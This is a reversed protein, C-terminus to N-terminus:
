QGQAPIGESSYYRHALLSIPLGICLMLIGCGIFVRTITFPIAPTNSLPVVMLNMILWVFIGYGLGSLYKNKALIRVRPYMVFYLVTWCFAIFYHFFVGCWALNINAAVAERGFVGSAIFLFIKVPETGGAIRYNMIAALADLTVALFGAIVVYRGSRTVFM